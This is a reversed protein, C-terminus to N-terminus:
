LGLLWNVLSFSTLPASERGSYDGGSDPQTMLSGPHQPDAAQAPGPGGLGRMLQELLSTGGGTQATLGPVGMEQLLQQAAATSVGGTRPGPIVSSIPRVGEVPAIAKPLISPDFPILGAPPIDNNEEPAKDPQDKNQENAGQDPVAEEQRPPTLTQPIHSPGPLSFFASGSDQFATRQGATTRQREVSAQMRTSSDIQRLVSHQMRERLTLPAPATGDPTQAKPAAQCYSRGPLLLAAFLTAILVQKRHVMEFFDELVV